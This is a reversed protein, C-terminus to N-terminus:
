VEQTGTTGSLIKLSKYTHPPQLSQLVLESPLESIWVSYLEKIQQINERTKRSFGMCPHRPFFDFM